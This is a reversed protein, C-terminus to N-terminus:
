YFHTLTTLVYQIMKAVQQFTDSLQLKKEYFVIQKQTLNPKTLKELAWGFHFNLNENLTNFHILFTNM